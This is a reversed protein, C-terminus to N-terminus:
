SEEIVRDPIENPNDNSKVPCARTLIEGCRRVGACLGGAVDNAQIRDLVSRVVDNWQDSLVLRALEQDALVYVQRELVSLMLLVGTRERTRSIGHQAFAREARLQVKQRMREQSTVLRVIPAFTGSWAGTAYATVTSLVLWAANAAHWGWPLWAAELMLLGTLVLLALILGARHQADRYLGSRSVIMPVIEARTQREASRVAERIAARDEATLCSWEGVEM